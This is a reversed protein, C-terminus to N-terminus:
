PSVMPLGRVTRSAGRPPVEALVPAGLLYGLHRRFRTMTVPSCRM